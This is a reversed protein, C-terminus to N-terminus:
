GASGLSYAIRYIALLLFACAVSAVVRINFVRSFMVRGDDEETALILTWIFNPMIAAALLLLPSVTIRQALM